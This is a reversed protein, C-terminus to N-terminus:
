NISLSACKPRGQARRRCARVLVLLLCGVFMISLVGAAQMMRTVAGTYVGQVPDYHSCLLILRETFRGIRGEDAETLALRLDRPNLALTSLAHTVRGDPTVVLAGAPHAFQDTDADYSIRYGIAALFAQTNKDSGRMIMTASALTPTIRRDHLLAHADAASDHPDFDLVVFRFDQGPTLGAASAITLAPGCLTQCTFDAPLILAPRGALAEILNLSRGFADELTLRRRFGHM